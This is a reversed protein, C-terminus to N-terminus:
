MRDLARLAESAIQNELKKREAFEPKRKAVGIREGHMRYHYLTESVLGMKKNAKLLTYLWLIDEGGLTLETNFPYKQLERKFFGSAAITNYKLSNLDSYREVNIKVIDMANKEGKEDIFFREAYSFVIDYSGEKIRALQKTLRELHMLDDSDLWCAYPTKVQGLLFDRAFGVGRHEEGTILKLQKKRRMELLRRFTSVKEKTTDTSADDYVIIKFYPYSQDFVSQICELIYKERNYAPILISIKDKSTM